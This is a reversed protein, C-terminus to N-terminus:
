MGEGEKMADRIVIVHKTKYVKAHKKGAELKGPYVYCVNM